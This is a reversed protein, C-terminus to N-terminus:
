RVERAQPEGGGVGAALYHGGHRGAFHEVAEVGPPGQGDQVDAGARFPVGAVDLAGHVDVQALEAPTTILRGDGGVRQLAKQVSRLNGIDYDIIAIM